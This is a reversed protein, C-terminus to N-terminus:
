LGVGSGTNGVNYAWDYLIDIFITDNITPVRLTIM